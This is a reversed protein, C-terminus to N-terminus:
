QLTVTSIGGTVKGQEDEQIEITRPALIAAQTEENSILVQEMLAKLENIPKMSGEPVILDQQTEDAVQMLGDVAEELMKGDEEGLLQKMANTAVEVAQQQKDEAMDMARTVIDKAAQIITNYKDTAAKEQAKVSESQSKAVAEEKSANTAAIKSQEGAQLKKIEAEMAHMTEVAQQLQPNNEPNNEDEDQMFRRGDRYGALGFVEKGAEKLDMGPIQLAAVEGYAKLAGIFKGLKQTPDTAGMGVNVTLTLEHNLLSDTIENIGYKQVLKARDAAIAFITEDTEYAQELKVLQVLVREVWTETITRITYETLQNASGSILNMGGVTEGMKRNTMVSGQSFNGTLEDYDVNLRDQEQYSSSTVDNFDITKVDGTPDNALTISAPVNRVISKLDVQAGRKVIYRKNLVLKVNDIRQNAIENAERQLNEGLMVPSDPMIKHTEIVSVGLVIPREGHFYVEKLPKADTLMFQTGMTYYVMEKGAVRVFNEHVWVIEYDTIPANNQSNPDQRKGERAQKTTDFRNTQSTRIEGDTLKKWKPQNTKSDVKAMMAKVDVVYMPILRIVYPSSKIPNIWNAAPDIRVNEIPLLEICPEDELVKGPAKQLQGAEDTVYENSPEESYKWYQYSSVVGVTMADQVGGVVTQFWPITKTLRYNLIEKWLAASAVQEKNSQDVADTSIVDVNSFFAAAAAAEHKRVMSRSKPRFLKSRHKYTDSNYKSDAPHRSQFMAISDEWKKRYNADVYSTSSSYADQALKLYDTM